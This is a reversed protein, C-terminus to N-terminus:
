QISMAESASLYWNTGNFYAGVVFIDDTSGDITFSTSYAIGEAGQTAFTVTSATSSGHTFVIICNCPRAPTQLTATVTAQDNLDANIKLYTDTPLTIASSSATATAPTNFDIKQVSTLDNGNVNIDGSLQSNQTRAQELTVEHPNSTSGTHTTLDSDDAKADLEDQLDTQNSLTGTIDGWDVSGPTLLEWTDNAENMRYFGASTGTKLFWEGATTTGSGPTPLTDGGPGVFTGGNDRDFVRIGTIATDSTQDVYIVALPGGM